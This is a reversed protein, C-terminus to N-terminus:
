NPGKQLEPPIEGVVKIDARAASMKGLIDNYADILHQNPKFKGSWKLEIEDVPYTHLIPMMRMQITGNQQDIAEHVVLPDVLIVKTDGDFKLKGIVMRGVQDIITTISMDTM